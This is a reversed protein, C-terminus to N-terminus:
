IYRLLQYLSCLVNDPYGCPMEYFYGWLDKYTGHLFTSQTSYYM